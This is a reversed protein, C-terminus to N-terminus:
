RVAYRGSPKLLHTHVGYRIADMCNHVLVGNAFYEHDGEITLDYVNTKYEASKISISQLVHGQAFNSKQINTQTSLEGAFTVLESKLIQEPRGGLNQNVSIPAFGHPKRIEKFTLYALNVNVLESTSADLDKSSPTHKIGNAVQKVEIGNPHQWYEKLRFYRLFNLVKKLGRKLMNPYIFKGKRLKLTQFIMIIHIRMKITFMSAKQYEEMISNGFSKMCGKITGVSTDKAKIFDTDKVTLTNNLYLIDQGQLDQIQKWGKSTKIKHDPTCTLTICFTDFQMSYEIVKKIGRDWTFIVKKIGTETQVFEYPKVKWIQKQDGNAMTILTQAIFCHDNFKVPEDLINGNADEKYKYNAREKLINVSAKTVNIKLRKVRDIGDKVSKDAPKANFGARQLEVIRQPEAADCYIPSRGTITGKLITILDQNTLNSQYLCEELFLIRGDTLYCRVLATPVNFGFDLGYFVDYGSPDPMNDVTDWVGYIQGKHQGREGLGYIKWYNEDTGKLYEIEAIQDAGLFTNDKYTSKIFTIQGARKENDLLKEYIWHNEDSPNYDIFVQGNQELRVNLQFFDEWTLENAENLWLYDRKSGRKKQPDDMSIFEILNSGIRYTSETKNHCSPDYIELNTLIEFFDRMVTLKLSPLTKRSITLVKNQENLLRQIFMQAISYTKSSNHVLINDELYYNYNYEISLDYVIPCDIYEWSEIDELKLM